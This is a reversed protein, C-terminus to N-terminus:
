KVVMNSKNNKNSIVKLKSMVQDAIDNANANGGNVTMNINYVSSLSNANNESAPIIREGKHIQAIMDNPVYSTGVDFSPLSYKPFPVMGGASYGGIRDKFTIDSFGVAHGSQRQRLALEEAKKALAAATPTKPPAPVVSAAMSQFSSWDEKSGAKLRNIMDAYAKIENPDTLKFSAVTKELLPIERKIEAIIADNYEAPTMSKAISATSEAFWRKAGGKVGLLNIAAQEKMSPMSKSLERIGSALNFVGSTGADVLNNGSLNAKQLDKDGRLLSSVLQRIYQDKTFTGTPNAFEPNFASKLALLTRKGKPDSPDMIKILQQIPTDLGQVDRAIQNSRIESLGSLADTVPKVFEKTGNVGKYLGGIGSVPFSKGVTSELQEGLKTIPLNKLDSAQIAAHIGQMVKEANRAEELAKIGRPMGLFLSKGGGMGMFNLPFLATALNDGSKGLGALKRLIAATGFMEAAPMGTLGRAWKQLWGNKNVEGGAAYHGANLSDFMGKGYKSVSAAKIVYEGDSLLAPISDSTGSGPGSIHGGSAKKLKSQAKALSEEASTVRKGAQLDKIRQELASIRKDDKQAQTDTNFQSAAYMASQRLTAAKLYDGSIMAQKADNFRNQQAIEFDQQRKLESNIDKLADRKKKLGNLEVQANAIALQQIKSLPVTGAGNDTTTTTTKTPTTPNIIETFAKYAKTFDSSKIYAEMIKGMSMRRYGQKSSWAKIDDANSLQLALNMMMIQGASTEAEMGSSKIIETIQKYRAIMDANGSAAIAASLAQVGVKANISSKNIGNIRQKIQELTLTGNSTINFLNLMTDSLIKQSVNLADYSKALNFRSEWTADSAQVAKDIKGLSATTAVEADTSNRSVEKWVAAFDKTRNAATLIALVYKQANKPDLGGTSIASSVQARINGTLATLNMTDKSISKVFKSMPNDKPLAMIADALKKIEPDAGAFSTKINDIDKTLNVIKVNTDLVKDGFLSVLDTSPTFTAKAIAAHEKEAAILHQVGKYALTLAAVGGLIPLVYAAPAMMALMSAMGVNSLVSGGINAAENKGGGIGSVMPAAVMAAMGLGMGIGMKGGGGLLGATLQSSFGRNWARKDMAGFEQFVSASAEANKITTANMEEIFSLASLRGADRLEVVAINGIGSIATAVPAYSSDIQAILAKELEGGAKMGAARFDAIIKERFKLFEENYTHYFMATDSGSLTLGKPGQTYISSSIPIVNGGGGAGPGAKTTLSKSTNYTSWMRQFEAPNASLEAAQLMIKNTIAALQNTEDTVATQALLWDKYEINIKANIEAAQEESILSKGQVDTKKVIVNLYDTASTRFMRSANDVEGTYATMSRIIEEGAVGTKAMAANLSENRVGYFGSSPKSKAAESQGGYGFAGYQEKTMQHYIGSRSAIDGALPNASTIIAAASSIESGATASMAGALGELTVTLQQVAQNMLNVADVDNVIENSFLQAAQQSAILNPTLLEGLTKTGTILNKIGFMGRLLYGVFNAMVGTLMILPGALAIGGALLGFLSKVPSPLNGFAKGVADGFELLKTAIQMVKEGVPILDAKITEVARKFKGTTSETAVSLEKAAIAALQPASANVLDFATKTQSNLSGLNEILASVRAEQFKGFLKEILQAKALPELGKLSKQLMMIMEVPNGKTATAIGPLNINYKSFAETAAKSPNILSALASKIANASQAAPVGAEKMAVMMVATDKFSGGLQAVIPGVRPIGDVLDQLSTSTQNEVANLFNVAGGLEQTSIKYVNQLSITAQMAQQTDLEGLKSLRMAERTAGILDTGTKGTAAIDAAMAATDKAAIGWSSALEKALGITQTKVEALVKTTPQTLGSGYVKQLRVLQDNVEQFTKMSAAGFMVMPVTLGVTLQRGAWQTNKGWNILSQTGKNVAINYLNQMNTAIKTASSVENIRTPTFVSFVGQRTPDSMVMSNQLKTQEIALAKMQASAQSSRNRIINFYENLKLKGGVLAEGFKDTESKLKVTQQTFQGTSLMTAKFANQAANLDKILSSNLGTGALSKNLSDVQAKLSAIQSNVSKFDGLAVINLEVRAM